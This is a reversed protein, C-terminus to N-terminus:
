ETEGKRDSPSLLWWALLGLLLAPLGGLVWSVGGTLTSFALSCGGAALALLICVVGFFRRM